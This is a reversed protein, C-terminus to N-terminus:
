LLLWANQLLKYIEVIYCIHYALTNRWHGYPINHSTLYADNKKTLCYYIVQFVPISIMKVWNKSPAVAITGGHLILSAKFISHIFYNLLVTSCCSMLQTKIMGCVPKLTFRFEPISQHWPAGQEFCSRCRLDLYSCHNWLWWFWKTWLRVNLWKVRNSVCM